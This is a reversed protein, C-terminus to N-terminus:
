EAEETEAKLRDFESRSLTGDQDADAARFQTLLAYDEAAENQSLVGNQDTDLQGFTKSRAHDDAVAVNAALGAAFVLPIWRKM